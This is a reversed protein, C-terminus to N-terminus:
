RWDNPDYLGWSDYEDLAKQLYNIEDQIESFNIFDILTFKHKLRLKLLLLRQRMMEWTRM